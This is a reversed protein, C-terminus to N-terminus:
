DRRPASLDMGLTPGIGNPHEGFPNRGPNALANLRRRLDKDVRVVDDVAADQEASEESGGPEALVREIAAQFRDNQPTGRKPPLDLGALVIEFADEFTQAM